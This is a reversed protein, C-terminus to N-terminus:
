SFYKLVRTYRQFYFRSKKKVPNLIHGRTKSEGVFLFLMNMNLGQQIKYTEILDDKMRTSKLRCLSLCGLREECSYVTEERTGMERLKTQIQELPSLCVLSLSCSM